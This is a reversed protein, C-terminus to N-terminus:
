AREFGSEPWPKRILGHRADSGRDELTYTLFKQTAGEGDGAVKISYETGEYAGTRAFMLYGWWRAERETIRQEPYAAQLAAVTEDPMEAMITRIEEGSHQKM